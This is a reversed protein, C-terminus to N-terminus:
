PAAVTVTDFHVAADEDYLGVHGSRYPRQGDTIRALLTGDGWVTITAGVQRVRMTHWRGVAFRPSAGTKLYRQAGPFAPDEKGLEWGNPKLVLYYFHTDDTYHWLTWGVEWANPKPLRLQAVTRTRVTVDLDGYSARTTVLGAHTEASRTSAKPKELLVRTGDNVVGTYGYGNYVARWAGHTSGDTWSTATLAQRDWTTHLLVTAAFAPSQGLWVGFALLAVVLARM